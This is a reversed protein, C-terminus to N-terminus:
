EGAAQGSLRQLLGDLQDLSKYYLTVSGERGKAAIAVRLGLLDSLDTELARTDADKEKPGRRAGSSKATAARQVLQETQRVSLGQDVVQRALVEPATASLLARAHGASLDGNDVMAKVVDPLGLLRLMNAVHSRSKGVAKALAEQTHGFEDMLRQLGVAEELPSLDERQLNEVLAVELTEKNSLVKVLVPVEHLQALQAARWRREGAIIEYDGPRDPHERVLIPQLVGLERISQALDQLEAEGMNRRPQYRGPHLKEIAIQRAGAAQAPSTDEGLLASLGRGLNRRKEAMM